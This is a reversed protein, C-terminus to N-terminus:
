KSFLQSNDKDFSQQTKATKSAAKDAVRDIRKQPSIDSITKDKVKIEQPNEFQKPM